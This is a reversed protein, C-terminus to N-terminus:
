EADRFGMSRSIAESRLLDPRRPVGDDTKEIDAMGLFVMADDDSVVKLPDGVGGGVLAFCSVPNTSGVESELALTKCLIVSARGNYITGMYDRVVDACSWRESRNYTVGPHPCPSLGRLRYVRGAIVRETAGRIEVPQRLPEITRAALKGNADYRELVFMKQAPQTFQRLDDTSPDGFAAQWDAAIVQGALMCAVTIMGWKLRDSMMSWGKLEQQCDYAVYNTIDLM